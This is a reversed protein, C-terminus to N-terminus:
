RAQLSEIQRRCWGAHRRRLVDLEGAATSGSSVTSASPRSCGIGPRPRPISSCCATTPSARWATASRQARDATPPSPSRPMSTSGAPSCPSARLVRRNARTSCATAGTSRMASHGTGTSSAPGPPSSGCGTTSGPRSAMSVSRRTGPRLWSSRWPWATSRGASRPSGLSTRCAPTAVLHRRGPGPVARRRRGMPRFACGLCQTCGSTRCSCAPGVPRSCPSRGPVRRPDAGPLRARRRARARLQRSSGVRRSPRAGGRARRRRRGAAARSRRRRRRPDLWWGRILSGCWTSSCRETGAPRPAVAAAVALALRTKGVGGPGTVTVM